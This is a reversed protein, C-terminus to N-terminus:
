LINFNDLYNYIIIATANFRMRYNAKLVFIEYISLFLFNHFFHFNGNIGHTGRLVVNFFGCFNQLFQAVFQFQGNDGVVNNLVGGGGGAVYHGVEELVNGVQVGEICVVAGLQDANCHNVIFGEADIGAGLIGDGIQSVAVLDCDGVVAGVTGASQQQQLLFADDLQLIAHAHFSGNQVDSLVGQVQLDLLQLSMDDLQVIGDILQVIQESEANDHVVNGIAVDANGNLAGIFSVTMEPTSTGVGIIAAGIVFDSVKFKRAISVSGAVLCDAGFVIGVLSLLLIVYEM